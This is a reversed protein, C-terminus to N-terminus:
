LELQLKPEPVYVLQGWVCVASLNVLRWKDVDGRHFMEWPLFTITLLIIQINLSPLMVHTKIADSIAALFFREFHCRIKKQRGVIKQVYWSQHTNGKYGGFCEGQHYVAESM